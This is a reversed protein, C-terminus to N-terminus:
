KGGARARSGSQSRPNQDSSGRGRGCKCDVVVDVGPDAWARRSRECFAGDLVAVLCCRFVGGEANLMLALWLLNGVREYM